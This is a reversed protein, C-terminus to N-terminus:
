VVGLLLDPESACDTSAAIAVFLINKSSPIVTHGKFLV